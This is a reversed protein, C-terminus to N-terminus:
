ISCYYWQILEKELKELYDLIKTEGKIISKGDEIIAKGKTFSMRYALRLQDLKEQILQFDKKDRNGKLIIM